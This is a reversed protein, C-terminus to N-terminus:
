QSLIYFYSSCTNSIAEEVWLYLKFSTYEHLHNTHQTLLWFTQPSFYNCLKQCISIFTPMILMLVKTYIYMAYKGYLKCGECYASNHASPCVNTDIYSPIVWRWHCSCYCPASHDRTELTVPQHTHLVCLYQTLFAPPTFSRVCILLCCEEHHTLVLGVVGFVMKLVEHPLTFSAKNTNNANIRSDKTEQNWSEWSFKYPLMCIHTQCHWMKDQQSVGWFCIKTFTEPHLFLFM